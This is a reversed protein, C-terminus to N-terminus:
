SKNSWIVNEWVEESNGIQSKDSEKHSKVHRMVRGSKHLPWAIATRCIDGAEAINPRGAIEQSIGKKVWESVQPPHCHQPQAM